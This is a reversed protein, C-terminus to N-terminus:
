KWAALILTNFGVGVTACRSVVLDCRWVTGSGPGLMYLGDCYRFNLKLVYAIFSIINSNDQRGNNQVPRKVHTLCTITQLADGKM